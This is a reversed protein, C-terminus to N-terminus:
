DAPRVPAAEALAETAHAALSARLQALGSADPLLVTGGGDWPDPLAARLAAPLIVRPRAPALHLAAALAAQREPRLAFDIFALAGRLNTAGAALCLMLPHLVSGEAPLRAAVPLPGRLADSRWLPAIDTRPRLRLLGSRWNRWDGAEAWAMLAVLHLRARDDVPDVVLPDAVLLADFGIPVCPAAADRAAPPLHAAAPLSGAPPAVILGRALAAAAGLPYLLALDHGGQTAVLQRYVPQPAAVDTYRALGGRARWPALLAQDIGAAMAGDPGALAVTQGGPLPPAALAVTAVAVGLLGALSLRIIQM